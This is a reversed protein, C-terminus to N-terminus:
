NDCRKNWLKAAEALSTKLQKLVDPFGTNHDYIISRTLGGCCSCRIAVGNSKKTHTFIAQEAEGGCFPCDLLKIKKRM